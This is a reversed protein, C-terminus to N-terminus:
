KMLEAIEDRLEAAKEFEMNQVALDMQRELEGIYKQKGDDDLYTFYEEKKRKERKLGEAKKFELDAIKKIITTPTIHHKENYAAQMKRRRNTEDIAQRMAPTIINAYMIVQGNVNRATRGITQLLADRSRLFGAKDADLIAVLSVEPLDIGERLLNIGVIIDIEGLRLDRLIKIRDLTEVESHLYEVKFGNERLFDTLKESTKKTLTTILTREGAKIRLRIKELLHDIQGDIPHISIEPDLLGTPRIIQQIIRPTEQDNNKNGLEIKKRKLDKTYHLIEKLLEPFKKNEPNNFATFHGRNELKILKALLAKKYIKCSQIIGPSDNSVFIIINEVRNKIEPDIEFNVFDNLYHREEWKIKSPAILFLNKVRKKTEGLWRVWFTGGASTGVLTTNEDIDLKEIEKKWNEYEPQWPIPMQPNTVSFGNQELNEKLWGLWHRVNDPVYNPENSRDKTPAGHLIIVKPKQNSSNLYSDVISSFNQIECNRMEDHIKKPYSKDQLESLLCKMSGSHSVLLIKEGSLEQNKELIFDKMRRRVQKQTEGTEAFDINEAWKDWDRPPPDYVTGEWDGRFIERIRPDFITELELGASVIEATERTRIFDSAFMKTIGLRKLEKISEKAQRIGKKTLHSNDKNIDNVYTKTINHDAEGHRIVFWQNTLKDNANESYENNKLWEYLDGKVGCKSLEYHGPTASVYITQPMREEFEKWTLPRNDYSSPLRFGYEVLQRKRSLNGEHMAGIQPVTMHSEDIFLLFDRTGDPKKPFFDLLTYPPQGPMVGTLYRTYNEIGNVYGTEKLMDMDYMTRQMLRQAEVIKGNAKLEATRLDMEERIKPLIEAIREESTIAHKAPIFLIQKVDNLIQGTLHDTEQIKEIENGWFELRFASDSMPPFVEVIDGRVRFAGRSFKFDDRRYQIAILSRLFDDRAINQGKSVTVALGIYDEPSGLGYIASVSAVVIVDQRTLLDYTAKHRYKDIEENITTEKEIYTDSKAIYAEPQYYDYYSVFYDVANEPFLERFESALQAALTKNHAMVLTPKQVHNIVNAMTFTKGSGTVGLLLQDHTKSDIGETLKIIAQPQDGTPKNNSILNFKDAM